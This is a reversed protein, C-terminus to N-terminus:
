RAGRALATCAAGARHVPAAAALLMSGAAFWDTAHRSVWIGM